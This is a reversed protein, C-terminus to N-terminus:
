QMVHSATIKQVYNESAKLAFPYQHEGPEIVEWPSMLYAKYYTLGRDLCLCVRVCSVM